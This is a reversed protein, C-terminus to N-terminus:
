KSATTGQAGTPGPGRKFMQLLGELFAFFVDVAYGVLFAVALPSVAVGPAVNFQGVVLGGIGAILYRAGYRNCAILTHNKKQDESLRLM